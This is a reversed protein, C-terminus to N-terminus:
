ADTEETGISPRHCRIFPNYTISKWDPPSLDRLRTVARANADARRSDPTHAPSHLRAGIAVKRARSAGMSGLMMGIAYFRAVFWLHYLLMSRMPAYLRKVRLAYFLVTLVPALNVLLLSVA